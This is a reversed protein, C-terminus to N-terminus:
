ERPGPVMSEAIRELEVPSSRMTLSLRYTGENWTIRSCREDRRCLGVELVAPRGKFSYPVAERLDTLPVTDALPAHPLETQSIVLVIEEDGDRRAFETIVARYPRAQAAVLVPPWRVSPPYYVPQYLADLRLHSRAEDASAYRRLGGEQLASPVWNFLQLAAVLIAVMFGFILMGGLTRKM